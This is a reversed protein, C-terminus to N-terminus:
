SIASASFPTMRSRKLKSAVTRLDCLRRNLTLVQQQDPIAKRAAWM